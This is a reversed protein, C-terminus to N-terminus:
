DARVAAYREGAMARVLAAPSEWWTIGVGDYTPLEPADAAQQLSARVPDEALAHYQVYRRVAPVDAVLRAHRELWHEQFQAPSLEPRRRLMQMLKLMSGRRPADEVTVDEPLTRDTTAAM